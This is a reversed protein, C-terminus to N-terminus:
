AQPSAAAARVHVQLWNALVTRVVRHLRDGNQWDEFSGLAPAFLERDSIFLAQGHALKSRIKYLRKAEAGNLKIEPAFQGVFEKFRQTPGKGIDRRCCACVKGSEPVPMLSEIALALAIYSASQSDRFTRASHQVWHCANGFRMKQDGTLHHYASISEGFNEPLDLVQGGSIGLRNQFEASPILRLSSCAGIPTFDGLVGKLEPYVYCRQCLMSTVERHAGVEINIQPRPPVVWQSSQDRNGHIHSSILGALLLELEIGRSIRRRSDVFPHQSGIYKFQLLFPHDALLYNPRPAKEPVPLIQFDDLYRFVGTVPIPAFLVWNGVRLAEVTRLDTVIRRKIETLQDENLAPGALADKLRHKADYVLKVAYSKQDGPFLLSRHDSRDGGWGGGCASGLVYELEAVECENVDLERLISQGSTIM